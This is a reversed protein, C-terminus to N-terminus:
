KFFADVGGMADVFKFPAETEGDYLFMEETDVFYTKNSEKHIWQPMSSVEKEDAGLGDIADDLDFEMVGGATIEPETPPSAKKPADPVAKPSNPTNTPTAPAKKTRPKSLIPEDEDNIVKAKLKYEDKTTKDADKWAQKIADLAGLELNDKKFLKYATVKNRREPAATSAGVSKESSKSGESGAQSDADSSTRSAEFEAKREAAKMQFPKKDEASLEKWMAGLSAMKEKANEGDAKARMEPDAMFLNYATPARKSVKAKKVGKSQSPRRGRKGKHRPELGAEQMRELLDPTEWPIVVDKEAEVTGKKALKTYTLPVEEDFRGFKPKGGFKACQTSHTLCYDHEDAKRKHTCQVPAGDKFTLACCRHEPEPVKTHTGAKRGRKSKFLSGYDDTQQELASHIERCMKETVTMKHEEELYEVIAKAQTEILPAWVAPTKMETANM